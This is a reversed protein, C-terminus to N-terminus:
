TDERGSNYDHLQDPVAIRGPGIDPAVGGVTGVAILCEVGAKELACIYAGYPVRHPALEHNM